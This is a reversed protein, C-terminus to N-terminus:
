GFILRFGVKVVLYVVWLSGVGWLGTSLGRKGAVAHGTAFLIVFSFYFLWGLRPM